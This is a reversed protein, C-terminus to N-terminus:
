RTLLYFALSIILVSTVPLVVREFPFHPKGNKNKMFLYWRGSAYFGAAGAIVSLLFSDIGLLTQSNFVISPEVGLYLPTLMAFYILTILIHSGRFNWTKKDIWNMTYQILVWLIAGVWVGIVTDSVGFVRSLGLGSAIAITCVPCVPAAMANSMNWLWSVIFGLFIQLQM